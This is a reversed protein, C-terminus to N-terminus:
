RSQKCFDLRHSVSKLTLVLRSRNTLTDFSQFNWPRGDLSSIDAGGRSTIVVRSAMSNVENKSSRVANLLHWEPRQRGINPVGKRAVVCVDKRQYMECLNM